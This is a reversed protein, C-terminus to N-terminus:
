DILGYIVQMFVSCVFDVLWDMSWFLISCESVTCFPNTGFVNVM